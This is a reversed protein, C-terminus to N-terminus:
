LVGRREQEYIGRGRQEEEQEISYAKTKSVPTGKKKDARKVEPISLTGLFDGNGHASQREKKL